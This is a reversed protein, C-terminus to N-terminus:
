NIELKLPYQHLKEIIRYLPKWNSNLKSHKHHNRHYVADGDELKVEKRNENAYKAQKKKATKLYKHVLVFSQHQQELAIQHEQDGYYKRRPKLINEIPLVPDRNYILM